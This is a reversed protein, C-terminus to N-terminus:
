GRRGPDNQSHGLELGLSGTQGTLRSAKSVGSLRSINPYLRYDFRVPEDAPPSPDQLFQATHRDAMKTAVFNM